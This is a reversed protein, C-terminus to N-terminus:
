LDDDSDSEGYEDGWLHADDVRFGNEKRYEHYEIGAKKAERRIYERAATRSEKDVYIRRKRPDHVGNIRFTMSYFEQPETNPFFKRRLFEADSEYEEQNDRPERRREMETLYEQVEDFYLIRERYVAEDERTCNAEPLKLVLSKLEHCDIHYRRMTCISSMAYETIM